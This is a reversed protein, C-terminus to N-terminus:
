RVPYAAQVALRAPADEGLATLLDDLDLFSEWAPTGTAAEIRVLLLQELDAVRHGKWVKDALSVVLDETRTGPDTWAAHSRAFRALPEPAGRELLLRYGAEEHASGPGSLEAPHRVKGVDHVAAGYRVAARDLGLDPWRLDVGDALQRVV